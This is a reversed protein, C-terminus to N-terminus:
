LWGTQALQTSIQKLTKIAERYDNALQVIRNTDLESPEIWVVSNSFDSELEGGQLQIGSLRRQINLGLKALNEGIRVGEAELAVKRIETEKRERMLRGLLADQQEITLRSAEPELGVGAIEPSEVELSEM